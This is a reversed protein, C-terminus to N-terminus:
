TRLDHARLSQAHETRRHESDACADPIRLLEDISPTGGGGFRVWIMDGPQLDYFRQAVDGMLIRPLKSPHVGVRRAHTDREEKPVVWMPPFLIHRSKNVNLDTCIWDEVNIGLSEIPDANTMGLRSIVVLKYPLREGSAHAADDNMEKRERKRTSAKANSEKSVAQIKKAISVIDDKKLSNKTSSGSSTTVYVWVEAGPPIDVRTRLPTGRERDSFDPARAIVAPFLSQSTADMKSLVYRECLCRLHVHFSSQTHPPESRKDNVPDGSAVTSSADAIDFEEGAVSVIDYGRQYLMEAANAVISAANIRRISSM